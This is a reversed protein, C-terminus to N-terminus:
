DDWGELFGQADYGEPGRQISTFSLWAASCISQKPLTNNTHLALTKM